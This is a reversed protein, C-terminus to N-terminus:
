DMRINGAKVVKSWKDVEGHIYDANDEPTGPSPTMGLGALRAKVDPTQIANNLAKNLKQVVDQPMKLPGSLGVYSEAVVGPLGAEAMTPVDPLMAIRTKGTVALARLKGSKVHPVASSSNVFLLQVQGGLMDTVAPTDGKYPVATFDIGATQKLLEMSMHGSAGIGTLAFTIEKPHAKAMAVLDKVSSGKFASSALLVNSTRAVLGIHTFDRRADYRVNPNVLQNIGHTGPGTAVLTYGDPAARSVQDSALSGNVGPKNEVLIPQGLERSMPEAVARAVVDTQGGAPFPVVITIPRSPWSQAWAMSTWVGALM